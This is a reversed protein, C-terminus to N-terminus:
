FKIIFNSRQPRKDKTQREYALPLVIYSSRRGIMARSWIGSTMLISNRDILKSSTEGPSVDNAAPLLSFRSYECPLARPFPFHFIPVFSGLWFGLAILLKMEMNETKNGNNM